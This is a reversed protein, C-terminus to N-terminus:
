PRHPTVLRYVRGSVPAPDEVTVMWNNTLAPVSGLRSWAGTDARDRFEVAYTRGAVAPFTLRAIGRGEIAAVKLYSSPDAPDTGAIFEERNTMTDGDADRAADAPDDANLGLAVEASDPIGDGDRDAAPKVSVRSSQLGSPRGANFVIVDWLNSSQVNTVVFFDARAHLLNTVVSSGNRRWRYGVPLTATNTVAVSLVVDSGPAVEAALPQVVITPNVLVTLRAPESVIPGVADTIVVTYLGDDEVRVAPLTLSANTQGPLDVGNFRWQFRMPSPSLASVNFTVPSGLRIEQSLPHATIIAPIGVRLTVEASEVAGAANFVVVSYRGAQTPLVRPLVLTANTAGPLNAGKFRWQYRLPGPGSVGVNFSASQYAVVYGDTPPQTIVPPAGGAFDEGPTPLAALWHAPENGYGNLPARQLSPGS